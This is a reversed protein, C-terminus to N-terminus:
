IFILFLLIIVLIAVLFIGSGIILYRNQTIEDENEDEADQIIPKPQSTTTPPTIPPSTTSPSTTSPSTTPPSTLQLQAITQEIQQNCSQQINELSVLSQGTANVNTYNTCCQINVPPLEIVKQFYYDGEGEKPEPENFTNPRKISQNEKWTNFEQNAKDTSRKCKSKGQGWRCNYQAESGAIRNWGSGYDNSCFSDNKVSIWEVCNIFEREENLLQNKQTQFESYEGKNNDWNLIQNERAEKRNNWIVKAAGAKASQQSNFEAIAKNEKITKDLLESTDLCAQLQALTLDKSM